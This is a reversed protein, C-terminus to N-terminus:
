GGVGEGVCCILMVPFAQMHPTCHWLCIQLVTYKVDESMQFGEGHSKVNHHKFDIDSGKKSGVITFLGFGHIWM